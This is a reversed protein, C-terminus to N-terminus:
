SRSPEVKARGPKNADADADGNRCVSEGIDSCLVILTSSPCDKVACDAVCDRRLTPLGSDDVHYCVYIGDVNTDVLLCDV